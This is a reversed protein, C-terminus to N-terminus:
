ERARRWRPLPGSVPSQPSRRAERVPCSLEREPHLPVVLNDTYEGPNVAVTDGGVATKLIHSISDGPNVYLTTNGRTSFCYYEQNLSNGANDSVTVDICVSEELGAPERPYIEVM